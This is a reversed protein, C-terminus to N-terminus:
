AAGQSTKFTANWTLSDEIQSVIRQSGEIVIEDGWHVRVTELGGWFNFLRYFWNTAVYRSTTSKTSSDIKTGHSLIATNLKEEFSELNQFDNVFLFMRRSANTFIVALMIPQFLGFMWNSSSYQFLSQGDLFNLLVIFGNLIAFSILAIKFFLKFNWPGIEKRIRM